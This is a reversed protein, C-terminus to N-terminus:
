SALKLHITVHHLIRSSSTVLLCSHKLVSLQIAMSNTKSNTIAHLQVPSGLLTPVTDKFYQEALKSIGQLM